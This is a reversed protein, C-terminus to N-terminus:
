AESYHQLHKSTRHWTQSTFDCRQRHDSQQIPHRRTEQHFHNIWAESHHHRNAALHRLLHGSQRAVQERDIPWRRECGVIFQYTECVVSFFLEAESDVCSQRFTLRRRLLANPRMKIVNVLSRQGQFGKWCHVSVHQSNATCKMSIAAIQWFDDVTVEVLEGYCRQSGHM